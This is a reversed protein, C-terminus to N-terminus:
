SFPLDGDLSAQPETVSVDSVYNQLRGQADQKRQATYYIVERYINTEELTTFVSDKEIMFKM